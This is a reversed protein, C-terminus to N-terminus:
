AADEVTASISVESAAESAQASSAPILAEVTLGEGDSSISLIGGLAWVRERMGVLGFGLGHGADLGHGNDGVRIVISGRDHENTAVLPEIAVVVKTAQAHRVVNTIAEQVVRYATLEAVEGLRGVAPSLQVAIAIEPHAESWHRRLAEIAGPLGLDALGPPRLRELIRRNFQQLADIQELMANGHRSLLERASAGDGVRAVAGAHARLAFLYPGFEDHLERGIRRRELDQLSVMQEALRRRDSLADSLTAALHNLRICLAALEPAGAPTVRAQYDGAKISVMARSLADLPALSRRVVVSTVITLVTAVILSLTLQTVIGDWIERIEDDPHSTITLTQPQGAVQVVVPMTTREPHILAVFWAPPAPVDDNLPKKAPPVAGEPGQRAISLHRLQNLDAVVNDLRANADQADGVRHGVSELVQRTLKTVSRDEAQVRPGADMALRAVNAVFGMTLVLVVLSSIRSHLSLKQWM